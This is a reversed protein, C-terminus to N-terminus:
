VGATSLSIALLCHKHAPPFNTEQAKASTLNTFLISPLSSGWFPQETEELANQVKHPNLTAAFNFRLPKCPITWSSKWMFSSIFTFCFILRVWTWQDTESRKQRRVQITQNWSRARYVIAWWLDQGLENRWAAQAQLAPCPPATLIYCLGSKSRSWCSLGRQQWLGHSPILLYFCGCIGQWRAQSSQCMREQPTLLQGPINLPCSCWSDSLLQSHMLLVVSWARCRTQSPAGEGNIRESNEQNWTQADSHLLAFKVRVAGEEVSSPILPHIKATHSKQGFGLDTCIISKECQKWRERM